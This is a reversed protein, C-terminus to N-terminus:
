CTRPPSSCCCPTTARSRRSCTRTPRAAGRLPQRAPLGRRRVGRPVGPGDRDRALVRRGEPGAALTELERRARDSVDADTFVAHLQDVLQEQAFHLGYTTALAPLLRRQHTRYDLLLAEEGGPPGFQRRSSRTGCPSTSRSRRRRQDVRRLHECSGPDAHRADRLLAEDPERDREHVHRREDCRPTATWCRRARSASTTSRSAATTSATSGSSRAATRSRSARPARRRARRPDPGAARPRRAGRRRRHAARVGRGHPRRAGRQRHLGQARGRRAHPRRVRRARRRLDRDHRAGARQLRPRDRDDRLLRAARLSAITAGPVRRPPAGHRPAAGRRRVARVPRRVQRAALPRRVRADRVRRDLARGRGAGGYEVPYGIATGGADALEKAWALM